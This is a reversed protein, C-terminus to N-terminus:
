IATGGEGQLVYMRGKILGIENDSLLRVKRGNQVAEKGLRNRMVFVRLTPYKVGLRKATQRISSREM